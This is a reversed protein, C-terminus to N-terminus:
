RDHHDAAEATQGACRQGGDQDAQHARSRNVVPWFEVQEGDVEDHRHYEDHAGLAQEAHLLCALYSGPAPPACSKFRSKVMRTRTPTNTASSRAPGSSGRQAMNRM